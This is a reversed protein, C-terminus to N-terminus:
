LENGTAEHQVDGAPDAHGVDLTGPAEPAEPTEATGPTEAGPTEAPEATKPAANQSTPNPTSAAHVAIAGGSLALVAPVAVIALKRRLNM